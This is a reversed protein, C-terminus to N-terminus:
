WPSNLKKPRAKERIEKFWEKDQYDKWYWLELLDTTLYELFEKRGSCDKIHDISLTEFHSSEEVNGYYGYIMARCRYICAFNFMNAFTTLM